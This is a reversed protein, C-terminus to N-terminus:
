YKIYVEPALIDRRHIRLKRTQRSRVITPEPGSSPAHGSGWEAGGSGAPLAERASLHGATGLDSVCTGGDYM